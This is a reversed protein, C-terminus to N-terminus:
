VSLFIAVFASGFLSTPQNWTGLAIRAWKRPIVPWRRGRARRSANGLEILEPFVDNAEILGRRVDSLSDLDACPELM